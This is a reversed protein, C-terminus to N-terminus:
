ADAVEDGATLLEYGNETILVTHEYHASLSGDLTVITWDDDLVRIDYRGINVMPEIALTMGPQLKPGRGAPKYNPIQPEEHLQKGIGHGVLDRVVSYGNDEVFHQIAESIEHLHNGPKAKKLGEFLSEKTVQVLKAAEESVDGVTYTRAADGHYGKYYAGIDLSVVDGNEITRYGNPIGHVVEDNISVCISAPYGSYGLFSPMAGQSKIFDEALKDLEKTTVGPRIAKRLLEHTDSVIKGAERMIKIEEETKITFAM